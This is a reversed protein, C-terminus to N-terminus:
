GLDSEDCNIQCADSKDIQDTREGALAKQNRWEIKDSFKLPMTPVQYAWLNHFDKRQRIEAQLSRM